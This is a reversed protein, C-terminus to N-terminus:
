SILIESTPIAGTWWQCRNLPCLRRKYGFQTASNLFSFIPNRANQPDDEYTYTFDTSPVLGPEEGLESFRHFMLVRQCLRYIRVEFGARYASFPDLRVPWPSSDDPTPTDPDHEGYDFVVEFLWEAHLFVSSSSTLDAFYPTRNGYRIRKLYRNASRSVEKRNREHALSIVVGASDEAKYDYVIRNGKDNHSECIM